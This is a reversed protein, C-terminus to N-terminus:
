NIDYKTVLTNITNIYVHIYYISCLVYTYFIYVMVPAMRSSPRHTHANVGLKVERCM